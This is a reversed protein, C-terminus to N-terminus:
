CEVRPYPRRRRAPRPLRITAYSGPPATEVNSLVDAFNDRITAWQNTTLEILALQRGMLNQQHRINRDCTILVAFGAGEAARILDGNTITSWGLGAATAVDHGTLLGRLGFPGNQDLLIRIGPM